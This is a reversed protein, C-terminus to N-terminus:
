PSTTASSAISMSTGRPLEIATSPGFPDPFLVSNAAATPSLAGAAPSIARRCGVADGIEGLLDGDVRHERRRNAVDDRHPAPPREPPSLAHRVAVALEHRVGHVGEGDVVERPPPEALQRAPLALAGQEGLDGRLVRLQQQEVLGEGPTSRGVSSVTRFSISM